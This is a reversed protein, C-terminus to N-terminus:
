SRPFPASGTSYVPERANLLGFAPLTSGGPTRAHRGKPIEQDPASVQRPTTPITTGIGRAEQRRARAVPIPLRCMCSAAARPAKKLGFLTATTPADQSGFFGPFVASLFM